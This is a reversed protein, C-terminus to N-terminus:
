GDSVEQKEGWRVGAAVSATIPVRFTEFDNMTERLAVVANDRADAPVDLVIEDHVPIMMYQGFGAADLRLLAQKFVEAATGQILYNVLAYVKGRDAVHHRGTV